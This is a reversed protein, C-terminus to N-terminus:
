RVLPARKFERFKRIRCIVMELHKGIQKARGIVQHTRLVGPLGCCVPSIQGIGVDRIEDTEVAIKMQWHGYQRTVAVDRRHRANNQLCIM